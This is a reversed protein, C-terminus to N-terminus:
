CSRRTRPPGTRGSRRNPEVVAIRLGTPDFRIAQPVTGAPLHGVERGNALEYISITGDRRGAAIMQEKPHFDFADTYVGEDVSLVAKGRRSRLGRFRGPQCRAQRRPTRWRSQFARPGRRRRTRNANDHTAREFGRPNRHYRRSNGSRARSGTSDFDLGLRAPGGYEPWRTSPQLDALALCAIAENRFELTRRGRSDLRAADQRASATSGGDSSAARGAPAARALASDLYKTAVSSEARLARVYNNLTAQQERQLHVNALAIVFVTVALLFAVATGLTALGPNRRAWRTLRETSGVRRAEIPRYDLFCRLDEAMAGASGYRRAPDPEMAKHIITELDRPVASNLAGLRPPELHTVQYMLHDRNLADFAPRLAILEYLTLGLAHVDSRADCVGHFREPAMYRLTGVLDGTRTLDDDEVAKALGFDTVWVRGQGDLLLNSPKIDRHLTGRMHAYELAEAVQVGIRAVRTRMAEM